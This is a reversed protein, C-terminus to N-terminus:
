WILIERIESESNWTWIEFEAPVTVTETKLNWERCDRWRAREGDCSSESTLFFDPMLTERDRDRDWDERRQEKEIECSPRHTRDNQDTMPEDCMAEEFRSRRPETETPRKETRERHMWVSITPSKGRQANVGNRHMWQRWRRRRRWLWVKGESHMWVSVTLCEVDKMRWRRWQDSIAREKERETRTLEKM